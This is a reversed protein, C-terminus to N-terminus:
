ESQGIEDSKVFFYNALFGSAVEDEDTNMIMKMRNVGRDSLIPGPATNSCYKGLFLETGDALVNYIEVADRQCLENYGAVGSETVNNDNFKFHNFVIIVQEDLEGILEFVCHTNSPYNSPHRPSNFEGQRAQNSVYSFHCQGPASQAGPIKYDTEFWYHAKFGQGQTSGSNFVILLIPGESVVPPPITEGCFVYDFEDIANVQTYLRVYAETCRCALFPIIM